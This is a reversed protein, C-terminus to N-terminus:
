LKTRQFKDLLFKIWLTKNGYPIKDASNQGFPNKDWSSNQGVSNKDLGVRSDLALGFRLAWDRLGVRRPLTVDIVVSFFCVFVFFPRLSLFAFGRIRLLFAFNCLRSYLLFRFRLCCLRRPFRLLSALYLLAVWVKSNGGKRSRSGFGIPSESRGGNPSRVKGEL